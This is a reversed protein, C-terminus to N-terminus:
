ANQLFSVMEAPSIKGDLLARGTIAAPLGNERLAELDQVHRVGGSAQLQLGPFRGLIQRYLEVNPGTMAGDRSVDTCLVHRLGLSLYEEICEFVSTTSSTTWGHTTILPTGSEDIAVDLAVVIRDGGFRVLWSKLADPETIAMSGVVCRAVGADLWSSLINRDRIGGGVQVSMETEATIRSIIDRNVQTGSRAGDLDVIHLDQASFDAFTRAVAVPDGSYETSKEFDGQFLRVCKGDQVDIAPIVKM